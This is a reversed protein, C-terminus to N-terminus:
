VMARGRRSSLLGHHAASRFIDKFTLRDVANKSHFYPTILKKLLKGVQELIVEFEKIVASRYMDYDLEYDGPKAVLLKGYAKELTRVCRELFETNVIKM